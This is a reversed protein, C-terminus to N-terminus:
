LTIHLLSVTLFATSPTSYSFTNRLTTVSVSSKRPITFWSLLNKGWSTFLVLDILSKSQLLFLSSRLLFRILVMQGYWVYVFSLMWGQLRCDQAGFLQWQLHKRRHFQPLKWGFAFSLYLDVLIMISSCECWCLLPIGLYLFLCPLWKPM